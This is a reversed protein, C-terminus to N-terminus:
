VSKCWLSFVQLHGLGLHCPPQFYTINLSGELGLWKIFNTKQGFYFYIILFFFLLFVVKRYANGKTSCILHWVWCKLRSTTSVSTFVWCTAGTILFESFYDVCSSVFRLDRLEIGFLFMIQFKLINTYPLFGDMKTSCSNRRNPNQFNLQSSGPQVVTDGKNLACPYKRCNLILKQRIRLM